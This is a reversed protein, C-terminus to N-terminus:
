GKHGVISDYKPSLLISHVKELSGLKGQVAKHKSVLEWLAVDVDDFDEALLIDSIDRYVLWLRRIIEDRRNVLIDLYGQKIENEKM